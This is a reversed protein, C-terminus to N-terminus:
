GGMMPALNGSGMFGSLAFPKGLMANWKARQIPTLTAVLSKQGLAKSRAQMRAMEGLKGQWQEASNHGAMGTALGQNARAFSRSLTNKQSATLGLQAAVKPQLVSAPGISQLTLQRLRIRQAPTLMAALRKQMHDIATFMAKTRQQASKSSNTNMAPLVNMAEEMFTSQVKSAMTPTMKLEREVNANILLVPNYEVTPLQIGGPFQAMAWAPVVLLLSGAAVLRRIM